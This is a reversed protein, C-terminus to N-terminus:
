KKSKKAPLSYTITVPLIYGDQEGTRRDMKIRDEDAMYKWSYARHFGWKSFVGYAKEKYIKKKEM